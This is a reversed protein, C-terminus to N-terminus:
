VKISASVALAKAYVALRASQEPIKRNFYRAAGDLQVHLAQPGLESALDVESLNNNLCHSTNEILSWRRELSSITTNSSIVDCANCGCRLESFELLLSRATTLDFYTRLLPIYFRPKAGGGKGLPHSVYHELQGAGGCITDVFGSTRIRSYAGGFLLGVKGVEARVQSLFTDQLFLHSFPALHEAPGQFHILIEEPHLKKYQELRGSLMHQRKTLDTRTVPLIPIPQEDDNLSSMTLEYLRYNLEAAQSGDGRPSVWPPLVIRVGSNSGNDVFQRSLELAEAVIIKQLVDNGILSEVSIGKGAAFGSSRGFFRIDSFDVGLDDIQQPSEIKAWAIFDDLCSDVLVPANQVLLHDETDIVDRAFKASLVIGDIEDIRDCILRFQLKAGCRVFM